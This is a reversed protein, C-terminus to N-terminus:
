RVGNVFYCRQILCSEEVPKRLAQDVDKPSPQQALNDVGFAFSPVIYKKM